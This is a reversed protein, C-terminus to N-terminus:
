LLRRASCSSVDLDEDGIGTVCHLGGMIKLEILLVSWRSLERPLSAGLVSVHDRTPFSLKFYALDVALVEDLIELAESAFNGSLSSTLNSLIVM